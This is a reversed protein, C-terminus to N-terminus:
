KFVIAHSIKRGSGGDSYGPSQDFIKRRRPKPTPATAGTFTGASSPGAGGGDSLSTGFFSEKKAATEALQKKVAATAAFVTWADLKDLDARAKTIMEMMHVESKSKMLKKMSVSVIAPTKPAKCLSVSQLCDNFASRRPPM